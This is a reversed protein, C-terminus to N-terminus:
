LYKLRGFINYERFLISFYVLMTICVVLFFSKFIPIHLFIFSYAKKYHLRKNLNVLKKIPEPAILLHGDANFTLPSTKWDVAQLLFPNFKEAYPLKKYLKKVFELHNSLLQSVYIINKPYNLVIYNTVFNDAYPIWPKKLLIKEM